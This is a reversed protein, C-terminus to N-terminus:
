PSLCQRGSLLPDHFSDPNEGRGQNKKRNESSRDKRRLAVPRQGCGPVDVVNKEFSFARGDDVLNKLPPQVVDDRFDHSALSDVEPHDDVPFVILIGDVHGHNGLGGHVGAPQGNEDEVVPAGFADFPQGSIPVARSRASREIFRNELVPGLSPLALELGHGGVDALVLGFRDAEVKRLLPREAVAQGDAQHPFEFLSQVRGVPLFDYRGFFEANAPQFGSAGHFDAKVAIQVTDGVVDDGFEIGVLDDDGVDCRRGVDDPPDALFERIEPQLRPKLRGDADPSRRPIFGLVAFPVPGDPAAVNKVTVDTDAIETEARVGLLVGIDQSQAFRVSRRSELFKESPPVPELLDEHVFEPGAPGPVLNIEGGQFFGLGLADLAHDVSMREADVTM